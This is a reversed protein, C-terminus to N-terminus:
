PPRATPKSSMATSIKKRSSRSPRSPSAPPRPRLPRTTVVLKSAAAPSVIINGSTATALNGSSFKLTITEATDDALNTFTAIGGSVTATLTGTLPGSGSTLSVTVVTSNDGSELHGYLDEEYIVPQTSLPTGATAMASPPTFLILQSAPPQTITLYHSLDSSGSFSGGPDTYNAQITYAGIATNAPLTYSANATGSSSVSAPVPMGVPTPGNLITFTITGESVAGATSTVSATLPIMQSTPNFPAQAAMAITTTNAATVTLSSTAPLSTAFSATGTYVAQIVYTGVPTGAPLSANETANGSLVSVVIPGAIQVGSGNKVIFSVSGENPTGAPSSVTASLAIGEGGLENFSTNGGSPTVTTSAASVTLQKTDTSTKFDDPDTYVAQITYSGGATGKPFTYDTSAAGATVNAVASSGILHGGSNVISFTVIGEDVQGAGSGM